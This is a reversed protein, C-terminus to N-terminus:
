FLQWGVSIKSYPLLTSIAFGTKSARPSDRSCVVIVVRSRLLECLPDSLLNVMVPHVGPLRACRQLDTPADVQCQLPVNQNRGGSDTGTATGM